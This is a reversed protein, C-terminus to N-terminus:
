EYSGCVIAESCNGIHSSTFTVNKFNFFHMCSLVNAGQIFIHARTMERDYDVCIIKPPCKTLAVFLIFFLFSALGSDRPWAKMNESYVLTGEFKITVSQLDKVQIGGMLHFTKNPFVFIDGKELSNLTKNLIAGNQM